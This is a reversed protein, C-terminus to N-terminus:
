IYIYIYIRYIQIYIGYIHIRYVCLYIPCVHVYIPYVYIYTHTHTYQSLCKYFSLLGTIKQRSVPPSPYGNTYIGTQTQLGSFRCFTCITYTTWLCDTISPQIWTTLWPSLAMEHKKREKLLPVFGMMLVGSEYGLTIRIARWLGWKWIAHCQPYPSWFIFQHQAGCEPLFM